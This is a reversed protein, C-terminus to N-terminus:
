TRAQTAVGNRRATAFWDFALLLTVIRVRSPMLETWRPSATAPGSAGRPGRVWLGGTCGDRQMLRECFHGRMWLIAPFFHCIVSFFFLLSQSLSRRVILGGHPMASRVRVLFVLREFDQFETWKPRLGRQILTRKSVCFGLSTFRADCVSPVCNHVERWGGQWTRGSFPCVRRRQWRGSGKAGSPGLSNYRGYAVDCEALKVIESVRAQSSTTTWELQLLLLSLDGAGLFFTSVSIGVRRTFFCSRPYRFWSSAVSRWAQGLFGLFGLSRDLDSRYEESSEECRTSGHLITRRPCARKSLRQVSRLHRRFLSSRLIWVFWFRFLVMLTECAGRYNHLWTVAQAGLSAFRRTM